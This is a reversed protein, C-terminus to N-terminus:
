FEFKIEAAQLLKYFNSSKSLLTEQGGNMKMMIPNAQSFDVFSIKEVGSLKSLLIPTM